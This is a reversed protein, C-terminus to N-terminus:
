PVPGGVLIEHVTSSPIFQCVADALQKAIDSSGNLVSGEQRLIEAIIATQTAVDLRLYDKCSITLADSPPPVDSSTRPAPSRSTTRPTTPATPRRTTPGSETTMAVTGTTMNSCGAVGAIVLVAAAVTWVHTRMEAVM